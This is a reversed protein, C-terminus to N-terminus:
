ILFYRYQIFFPRVGHKTSVFWIAMSGDPDRRRLLCGRSEQRVPMEDTYAAVDFGRVHASAIKM